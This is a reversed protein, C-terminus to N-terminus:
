STKKEAPAPGASRINMFKNLLDFWFPAGLSAAAATLLWGILTVVPRERFRRKGVETWGIPLSTEQLRTRLEEFRREAPSSGAADVQPVPQASRLQASGSGADAPLGAPRNEPQVPGRIAPQRAEVAYVHAQAVVAERVAVNTWLTTGMGIADLNLIVALSLGLLVQVAQTRRKYWGSLRDMGDNFWREIGQRLREADGAAEENLAGLVRGLEGSRAAIAQSFAEAAHAPLASRVEDVAHLLHAAPAQARTLAGQLRELEARVRLGVGDAPILSALRGTQAAVEATAGPDGSALRARMGAIERELTRLWVQPQQFLDLLALAFTRAPIYSPGRRHPSSSGWGFLSGGLDQPTSLTKILPHQYLEDRLSPSLLLKELGKWLTTARLKLWSAFLENVASVLLSALLFVYSLALGVDLVGSAFM